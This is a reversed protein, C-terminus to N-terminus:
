TPSFVLVLRTRDKAANFSNLFERGGYSVSHLVSRSMATPAQTEVTRTEVTRSESRASVVPPSEDGFFQVGLVVLAALSLCVLVKKM